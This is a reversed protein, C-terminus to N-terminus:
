RWSHVKVRDAVVVAVDVVVVVVDVVVALRGLVASIEDFFRLISSNNDLSASDGFLYRSV